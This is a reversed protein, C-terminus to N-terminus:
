RQLVHQFSQVAQEHLGSNNDGIGLLGLQNLKDLQQVLPVLSVIEGRYSIRVGHQDLMDEVAQHHALVQVTLAEDIHAGARAQGAQRQRDDVRVLM